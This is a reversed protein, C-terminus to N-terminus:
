CRTPGIASGTNAKGTLALTLSAWARCSPTGRLNFRLIAESLEQPVMMVGLTIGTALTALTLSCNAVFDSDAIIVEAHNLFVPRDVEV